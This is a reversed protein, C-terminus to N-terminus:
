NRINGLQHHGTLYIMGSHFHTIHPRCSHDYQLITFSQAQICLTLQLPKTTKMVLGEIKTDLEEKGNRHQQKQKINQM